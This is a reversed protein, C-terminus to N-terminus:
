KKKIFIIISISLIFVLFVFGPTGEGDNSAKYVISVKKSSTTDESIDSVNYARFNIEVEDISNTTPWDFTFSKQEGPEFVIEQYDEPWIEYIEDGVNEKLGIKIPHSEIDGSNVITVDIYYYYGADTKKYCTYSPDGVFDLKAGSAVVNQSFLFLVFIVCFLSLGIKIFKNNKLSIL